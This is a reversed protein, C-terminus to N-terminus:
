QFRLRARLQGRNEMTHFQISNYPIRESTIRDPTAVNVANQYKSGVCHIWQISDVPYYGGETSGALSPMNICNSHKRSLVGTFALLNCMKRIKIKWPEKPKGRALWPERLFHDLKNLWSFSVFLRQPKMPFDVAFLKFSEFDKALSQLGFRLSKLTQKVFLRQSISNVM